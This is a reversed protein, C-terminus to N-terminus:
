SGIEAPTELQQAQDHWAFADGDRYRGATIDTDIAAPLPVPREVAAELLPGDVRGLYAQVQELADEPSQADVLIRAPVLFATNRKHHM